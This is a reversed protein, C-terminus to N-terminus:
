IIGYKKKDAETMNTVLTNYDNQKNQKSIKEFETQDVLAEAQKKALKRRKDDLAMGDGKGAAQKKDIKDMRKGLRQAKMAKSQAQVEPDNRSEDYARAGEAIGQFMNMYLDATPAYDSASMGGGVYGGQNLPSTDMDPREYSASVRAEEGYKSGKRKSGKKAGTSKIFNTNEIKKAKNLLKLVKMDSYDYGGTEGSRESRRQARKRLRGARDGAIQKVPSNSIHNESFKTM